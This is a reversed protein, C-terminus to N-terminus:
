SNEGSNIYQHLYLNYNNITQREESSFADIFSQVQKWIICNGEELSRTHLIIREQLLISHVGSIATYM